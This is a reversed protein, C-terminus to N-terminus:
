EGAARQQRRGAAVAGGGFAAPARGPPASARQRGAYLRERGPRQPPEPLRQQGAPGIARAVSCCAGQPRVCQPPAEGFLGELAEYFRPAYSLNDDHMITVLRLEPYAATEAQLYIPETDILMDEVSIALVNGRIVRSGRQDWLSLQGSLYSDRDIRTEMQQTGLVRKEKALKDALLRGYNGPRVHQRLADPMESRNKFADPFVNQWVQILPDNSQCVYFDVSEDYTDVVTKASNRISNGGRLRVNDFTGESDQVM